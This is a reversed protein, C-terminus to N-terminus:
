MKQYFIPLTRSVVVLENRQTNLLQWMSEYSKKQKEYEKTDRGYTDILYQFNLQVNPPLNLINM